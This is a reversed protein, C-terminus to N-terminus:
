NKKILVNGDMGRFNYIFEPNDELLDSIDFTQEHSIFALCPTSSVLELKAYRQPPESEALAGLDVLATVADGSQCGSEHYRVVLCGEQNLFATDIATLLNLSDNYRDEDVIVKTGCEAPPSDCCDSSECATFGIVLLACLSLIPAINKIM